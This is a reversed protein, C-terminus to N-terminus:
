DAFKDFYAINLVSSCIHWFTGMLWVRTVAGARVAKTRADGGLSAAGHNLAAADLTASAQRDLVLSDGGTIRPHNKNAISSCM